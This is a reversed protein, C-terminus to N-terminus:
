LDLEKIYKHIDIKERSDDELVGYVEIKDWNEPGLKKLVTKLEEQKITLEM